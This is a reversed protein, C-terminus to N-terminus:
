ELVLAVPLATRGWSELSGAYRPDYKAVVARRARADEDPDTVVYAKAPRTLEGVRVTVAPEARLNQVTDSREGGGALLYLTDGDAACWIEITHPRGSRRGTTTVYYFEADRWAQPLTM